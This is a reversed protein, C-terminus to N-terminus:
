NSVSYEPGIIRIWVEGDSGVYTVYVDWLNDEPLVQTHILPERIEEPLRIVERLPIPQYPQFM